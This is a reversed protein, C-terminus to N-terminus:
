KKIKGLIIEFDGDAERATVNIIIYEGSILKKNIEEIRQNAVIDDKRGRVQRLVTREIGYIARSKQWSSVSVLIAITSIIIAVIDLTM